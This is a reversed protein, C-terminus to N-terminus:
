GTWNLGIFQQQDDGACDNKTQPGTPVGHGYKQEKRIKVRKSIEGSAPLLSMLLSM